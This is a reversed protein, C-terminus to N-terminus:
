QDNQQQQWERDSTADEFRAAPVAAPATPAAPAAPATATVAVGVLIASSMTIEVSITTLMLPPASLAVGAPSQYTIM